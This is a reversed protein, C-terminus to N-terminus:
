WDASFYIGVVKKGSLADNTYHQEMQAHTKDVMNMSLLKTGLLDIFPGVQVPDVPDEKEEEKAEVKDTDLKNGDGLPDTASETSSDVASDTAGSGDDNTEQLGEEGTTTADCEAVDLKESMPLDKEVVLSSDMDSAHEANTFSIVIVSLLLVLILPRRVTKM